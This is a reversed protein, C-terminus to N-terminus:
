STTITVTTLRPHHPIHLTPINNKKKKLCFVAYSIIQHSSNLRTSKRDRDIADHITAIAQQEDSGGWMWGGMAWTGLGIRSAVIDTNGLQITEMAGDRSTNRDLPRHQQVVTSLECEM